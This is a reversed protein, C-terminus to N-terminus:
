VGAVRPNLNSFVGNAPNIVLTGEDGCVFMTIREGHYIPDAMNNWGTTNFAKIVYAGSARGAIQEAASTTTGIPLQLDPTIPNTCDILIKGTWDDGADTSTDM